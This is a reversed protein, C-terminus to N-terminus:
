QLLVKERLSGGDIRLELFYLGRSLQSLDLAQQWRGSQQIDPQEWVIQGQLNLLRLGIKRSQSLAISVNLQGKTPNPGIWVEDALGALPDVSVLVAQLVGSAESECDTATDRAIVFFNGSATPQFPNGSFLLGDDIDYWDYVLGPVPNNVSLTLSDDFSIVPMDLEQTIISVTMSSTNCLSQPEFATVRYNGDEFVVLSQGNQNDIPSGNRYWQLSDTNSVSLVITDGACLTISDMAPMLDPTTPTANVVFTDSCSVNLVPHDITLTVALGNLNLPLQGNVTSPIDFFLSAGSDAACGDDGFVLDNDWVQFEYTGTDLVVGSIGTNIPLNAGGNNVPNNSTNVIETGSPDILIWYIDGADLLDSCNVSDIVVSNLTYGFTDIVADYELIYTGPDPLVQPSVPVEDSTTYSFNNPGTLSWNFTYEPTGNGQINNTIDLSSPSCIDNLTATYCDGMFPCPTVLIQSNFTAPQDGVVAVNATLFVTVPYIGPVTPTGFVQACGLTDPNPNNPNVDYFCNPALNCAWDLGDPLGGISDITFSNFPITTPQGLILTVTDRPLFFTIDISYFECGTANAFTDPYIGPVSPVLSDIVCQAQSVSWQCCFLLGILVRVLIMKRLKM